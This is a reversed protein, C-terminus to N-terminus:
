KGEAGRWALDFLLRLNNAIENSEIIVGMEEKFSLFAVKNGYVDMEISFPFREKPVIRIERLLKKNDAAAYEKVEDTDPGIVKVSIGAAVRKNLYEDAWDAGLHRIINETVFAFLKGKYKLTDKYVEKLGEKGEYFRIKPKGGATNYLSKLIPMIEELKEKKEELLKALKEPEEAYFLRKKGKQTQGLLGKKKLSALVDYASTRKIGAKIAIENVGSTGLELLALYVEDEKNELGFQNLIANLDM